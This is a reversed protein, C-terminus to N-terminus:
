RGETITQMIWDNAQEAVSLLNIGLLSLGQLGFNIALLALLLAGAAAIAFQTTLLLSGGFRMVGTLNRPDEPFFHHAAFRGLGPLGRLVSLGGLILNVMSPLFTSFVTVYVWWLAPSAPDTRMLALLGDVDFPLRAGSNLTEANLVQVYALSALLMAFLLLTAFIVDLTAFLLPSLGGIRQGNRMLLRTLGFSLWNFVASVLPLAAFLILFSWNLDAPDNEGILLRPTGVIFVLFAMTSAGFALLVLWRMRLLEAFLGAIGFVAAVAIAGAVVFVGSDSLASPGAGFIVSGVVASVAVAIAVAVTSVSAGAGAGAYGVVFAVAIAIAAIGAVEFADAFAIAGAGVGGVVVIGAAFRLMRWIFSRKNDTTGPVRILWYTSLTIGVLSAAVLARQLGTTGEPLGLAQEIPGSYGSVLWSIILTLIPYAVALGLFHDLSAGSWYAHRGRGEFHHGDGFFQDIRNLTAGVGASYTHSLRGGSNVLRERWSAYVGRENEGEKTDADFVSFPRLRIRFYYYFVAILCLIMIISLGAWHAGLTDALIRFIDYFSPM